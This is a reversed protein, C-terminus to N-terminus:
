EVSLARRRVAKGRLAFYLLNGLSDSNYSLIYAARALNSHREAIRQRGQPTALSALLRPLRGIAAESVFFAISPWDIYEHLPPQLRNSIILPVCGRMIVEILRGTNPSDGDPVICVKSRYAIESWESQQLKYQSPFILVRHGSYEVFNSWDSEVNGKMHAEFQKRFLNVLLTRSCANETGSYFALIDRSRFSYSRHTWHFAVTWPMVIDEPLVAPPELMCHEPCAARCGSADSGDTDEEDLLFGRNRHSLWTSMGANTIVIAKDGFYSFFSRWVHRGYISGILFKCTKSQLCFNFEWRQSWTSVQNMLYKTDTQRVARAPLDGAYALIESTRNRRRNANAENELADKACYHMFMGTACHPLYVYDAARPDDVRLAENDLVHKHMWHELSYRYGLQDETYDCVKDWDGLVYIRTRDSGHLLSDVAQFRFLDSAPAAHLNNLSRYSVTNAAEEDMYRMGEKESQEILAEEWVIDKELEWRRRIKRLLSSTSNDNQIFFGDKHNLPQAAGEASFKAAVAGVETIQAAAFVCLAVGM